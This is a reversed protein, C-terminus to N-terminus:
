HQVNSTRHETETRWYNLTIDKPQSPNAKLHAAQQKRAQERGQYATLLRQHESNYLDHLSQIATLTEPAPQTEGIFQFTAKGEPFTLIEPLQYIRGTVALFKDAREADMTSWSMFISHSLGATDTFTGIGGAILSFDASSWFTIEHGEEM